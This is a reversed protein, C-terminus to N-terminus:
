KLIVLKEFQEASEGTAARVRIRYIYVGRGIRDGYDDTGDWDVPDSRFGEMNVIEHINKVVKGSITFIQIQVDMNVCCINHEFYFSTKTTFPNPYNLVHKLALQASTAVVFDTSATSSNNYVDWVKVGLTHHGESLQSLPYRITGKKYSNMDSEYYDNLVIPHANDADLVATLDHGIGTGATNIGSSDSVVVYIKPDTNTIGGSVFKENNLYLKIEPGIKDQAATTDTGGIVFDTFYGSGDQYGNHTFYSIRGKDFNYAIDKPVIFSFSFKGNTVSAKGKFLVNKQLLFPFQTDAPYDNALTTIKAAKDYVTPFIIGSFGSLLNGNKDRVEGQITLKSLARATDPQTVNVAAGNITTTAVTYQPYNLSLAPDSLLSFNRQNVDSANMDKKTLMFIDGLRPMQGNPMPAFAHNFFATNLAQNGNAYSVRTTTMLGISGGIPNLFTLEGASTKSPDDWVSFDCTATFFFPLKCKNTWSEIDHLELIRKNSWGLTGGHGVYNMILGGRDIRHNIANNVDPYRGGGPTIVEQYADSYIKDFNYNKYSGAVQTALAESNIEFTNDGDDAVLCITNIWDGFGSCVDNSCSNEPIIVGPISTYKTIKTVAIDAESNSKVPIRGVGIDLVDPTVDWNGENSDLQGYFDDSPYSKTVDWSNGSEYAPVYNTNNSTGKQNYSGRGVILLYKPLQTSDAAREYFMRVFDRISSVDQAGSSFENYIEQTTAVSVSLGDQKRHLDAIANAQSLFLPHAVVILDSQTMGHLDQNPIKGETKPVLFTQGSFAIFERLSDTPLTFDVSGGSFNIDQLKVDFPHTVDWVKVSSTANSLIFKSVNGAKVSGADRFIMESGNLSLNRRANVEIYDLWGIAPSPTVKTITVPITSSSSFCSLTDSTYNYYTGYINGTNVGAISFSSSAGGASWSFDTNGAQSDRRASTEVKVYPCATTVINPFNFNFTYSTTIDFIEGLWKRGSKIPNNLELHHFQYDDFSIITNTHSLASSNQLSIRKGSGPLDAAIFYYTTDSYINLNHHFWKDLASYAWRHQSQGYFLIYDASDFKGNNNQDFIDIANEQLDDYRFKNNAFSLQGGGNGYLRIASTSLSDMEVGLNKLFAVDMKYIGDAMVAIKYWKGNALVSNAAYTKPAPNIKNPTEKPIVQLSFSILKEYNGTTKNKRIPIFQVYAYPKKKIMSFTAAPVIEDSIINKISANYREVAKKEEENLLQFQANFIKVDASFSNLPLSYREVYVPFLHNSFDRQAGFFNLLSHKEKGPFEEVSIKQWLINKQGESEYLSSNRNQSFSIQFLVLFFIFFPNKM